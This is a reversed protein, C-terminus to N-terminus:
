SDGSHDKGRINDMSPAIDSLHLCDDSGSKDEKTTSSDCNIEKQLPQQLYNAYPANLANDIKTMLLRVSPSLHDQIDKGESEPTQCQRREDMNPTSSKLSINEPTSSILTGIECIKSETDDCIHRMPVCNSDSKSLSLAYSLMAEEDEFDDVDPTWSKNVTSSTAVPQTDVDCISASSKHSNQTANSYDKASSSTVIPINSSATNQQSADAM